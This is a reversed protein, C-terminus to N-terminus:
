NVVFIDPWGENDYELIAVGTGTTEINYKKSDVGGFVNRMTLGAKAAEDTFFAIPKAPAHNPPGESWLRIGSPLGWVILFLALIRACSRRNWNGPHSFRNLSRLLRQRGIPM